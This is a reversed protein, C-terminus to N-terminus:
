QVSIASGRASAEAGVTEALLRTREDFDAPLTEQSADDLTNWWSLKLIVSTVAVSGAVGALLGWQQTVLSIPVLVLSTQWIVGVLVNFGDRGLRRNPQFEPYLVRVKRLVTGWFGWPRVQM